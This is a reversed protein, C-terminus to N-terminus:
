AKGVLDILEEIALGRDNPEDNPMLGSECLERALLRRLSAQEAPLLSLEGAPSLKSLCEPQHEVLIERFVEQLRSPIRVM